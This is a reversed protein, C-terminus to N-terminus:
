RGMMNFKMQTKKYGAPVAFESPPINKEEIKLLVQETVTKRGMVSTETKTYVPFGLKALDKMKKAFDAYIEEPLMTEFQKLIYERDYVKIKDTYCMETRQNMAPIETIVVTCEYGNVKRKEGTVRVKVEMKSSAGFQKMMQVAMNVMAKMQDFSMEMYTKRKPSLMYVIRKKFDFILIQKPTEVKMYDKEFWTKQLYSQHTMGSTTVKHEMYYGSFLLGTVMFLTLLYLVGRRSAIKM